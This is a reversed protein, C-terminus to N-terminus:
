LVNQTSPDEAKDIKEPLTEAAKPSGGARQDFMHKVDSAIVAADEMKVRPHTPLNILHRAAEEARPCSGKEYNGVAPSVSEELVSTFWTGLVAHPASVYFAQTNRNEVWVPYRAYVPEAGRPHRPPNYSRDSLESRYFDAIRRRHELNHELRDLQRLGIAAQANSLRQEYRVPRVGRLERSSVPRSLPQRNGIKEYFWRAFLHMHPETLFHYVILKLLYRLTIGIQPPRCIDRFSRMKAAVEEDDTVVMGGMTTSITKTEETSFVAAKGFSGIMRGQYKSGLAHVCDEIVMLGFRRALYLIGDMDVPIGFTHQVLLVKSRPTIKKAVQELDMNYTDLTCDVYVPKADAFRIANSVVIHTPVQLIVEDGPKIGLAFLLGYIGVRASAFSCAYRVGVKRAFANEYREIEPGDILQRPNLLYRLAVLCDGLSTTGGLLAIRRRM